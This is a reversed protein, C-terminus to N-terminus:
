REKVSGFVVAYEIAATDHRGYRLLKGGTRALRQAKALSDCFAIRVGAKDAVAQLAARAHYCCRNHATGRSPCPVQGGMPPDLLCELTRVPVERDGECRYEHRVLVEYRKADHGPLSVAFKVAGATHAKVQAFAAAHRSDLLNALM